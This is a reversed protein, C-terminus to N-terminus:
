KYYQRVCNQCELVQSVVSSLSVAGEGGSGALLAFSNDDNSLLLLSLM